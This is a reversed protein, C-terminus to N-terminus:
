GMLFRSSCLVFNGTIAIHTTLNGLSPIFSLNKPWFDYCLLFSQAKSRENRLPTVTGSALCLFSISSFLLLLSALPMIGSMLSSNLISKVTAGRVTSILILYNEKLKYLNKAMQIGRYSVKCGISGYQRHQESCRM